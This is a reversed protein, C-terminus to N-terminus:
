ETSDGGGCVNLRRVGEWMRGLGECVHVMVAEVVTGYMLPVESAM